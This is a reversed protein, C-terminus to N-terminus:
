IFQKNVLYEFSVSTDAPNNTVFTHDFPSPGHVSSLAMSQDLLRANGRRNYSPFEFSANNPFHKLISYPERLASGRELNSSSTNGLPSFAGSRTRRTGGAKTTSATSHRFDRPNDLYANQQLSFQPSIKMQQTASYANGREADRMSQVKDM